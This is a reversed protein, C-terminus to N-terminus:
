KRQLKKVEEDGEGWHLGLELVHAVHVAVLHQAALEEDLEGLEQALLILRPVLPDGPQDVVCADVDQGGHIRVAIFHGGSLHHLSQCVHSTKAGVHWGPFSNM